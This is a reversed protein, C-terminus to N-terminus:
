QQIVITNITTRSCMPSTARLLLSRNTLPEWPFHVYRLVIGELGEAAARSADEACMVGKLVVRGKWHRRLWPLDSWDLAEDIFSGTLRGLGGGRKDNMPKGAGTMM